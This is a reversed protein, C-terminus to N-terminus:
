VKIKNGLVCNECVYEVSYGVLDREFILLCLM